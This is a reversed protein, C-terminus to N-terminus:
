EPWLLEIDRYLGLTAVTTGASGEECFEKPPPLAVNHLSV